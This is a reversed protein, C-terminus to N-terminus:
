KPLSDFYPKLLARLEQSVKFAVERAKQHNAPDMSFEHWNDRITVLAKIQTIGFQQRKRVEMVTEIEAREANFASIEKEKDLLSQILVRRQNNLKQFEAHPLKVSLKGNVESLHQQIALKEQVLRQRVARYEGEGLLLEPLTQEVLPKTDTNMRDM